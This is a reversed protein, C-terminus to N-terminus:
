GEISNRCVMKGGELESRLFKYIQQNIQTISHNRKSYGEILDLEPQPIFRFTDSPNPIQVNVEKISDETLDVNSTDLENIQNHYIDETQIM